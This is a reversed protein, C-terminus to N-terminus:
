GLRHLLRFSHTSNFQVSAPFEDAETARIEVTSIQDFLSSCRLLVPFQLNSKDETTAPTWLQAKASVMFSEGRVLDPMTWKITRKLEDFTGSGRLLDVTQVNVREPLAVAITFDQLDGKNSLKSRVQVAIRVTSQYMTVKRELLLPMHRIQETLLYTGVPVSGIEMKPISVIHISQAQLSQLSTSSEKLCEDYPRFQLRGGQLTSSVLAFPVNKLADSSQIQGHVKGEVHVESSGEYEVGFKAVSSVEEHISFRVMVKPPLAQVKLTSGTPNNDSSSSGVDTLDVPKRKEISRTMRNVLPPPHPSSGSSMDDSLLNSPWADAGLGFPDFVEDFGDVPDAFGEPIEQKSLM